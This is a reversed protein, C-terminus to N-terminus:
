GAADPEWADGADPPPEQVAPKSPPPAPPAVKTAAELRKRAAVYIPSLRLKDEDSIAHNAFAQKVASSAAHLEAMTTAQEFGLRLVEVRFSTDSKPAPPVPKPTTAAELVEGTMEDHSVPMPASAVARPTPELEDPDYMGMAADPYVARVLAASCRARLMAAPYKRWNDKGTVGATRAQELTFSMRTPSPEDRRHTEYTAVQDTSEVLRFYKCSSHRKVLAVMLDASLTVKGDFFYISRLAQSCTLGLERGTAIIMFAAEPTPAVKAFMRSATAVKAYEMAEHMSGPEFAMTPDRQPVAAADAVKALANGNAAPMVAVRWRGGRSPGAGCDEGASREGM